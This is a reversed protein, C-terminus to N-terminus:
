GRKERYLHIASMVDSFGLLEFDMDDYLIGFIENGESDKRKSKITGLFLKTRQNKSGEKSINFYKAVRLGLRVSRSRQLVVKEIVGFDFDQWQGDDPTHGDKPVWLIRKNNVFLLIGFLCYPDARSTNGGQNTHICVFDKGPQQLRHNPLYDNVWFPVGEVTNGRWYPMEVIARVICAKQALERDLYCSHGDEATTVQQHGLSVVSDARTEVPPGGFNIQETYTTLGNRVLAKSM